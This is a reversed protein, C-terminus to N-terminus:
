LVTAISCYLQVEQGTKFVPNDWESILKEMITPKCNVVEHNPQSKLSFSIRKDNSMFPSTSHTLHPAALLPKSCFSMSSDGIKLTDSTSETIPRCIPQHTNSAQLDQMPTSHDQPVFPSDLVNPVFHKALKSSISNTRKKSPGKNPGQEMRGNTFQALKQAISPTHLPSRSVSKVGIFKPIVVADDKFDDFNQSSSAAISIASRKNRRVVDSQRGHSFHISTSEEADEPYTEVTYSGALDKTTTDPCRATANKVALSTAKLVTTWDLFEVLTKSPQWCFDCESPPCHITIFYVPCGQECSKNCMSTLLTNLLSHVQTQSVLRNNVYVLQLSKSPYMEVSVYGSVHYLGTCCEVPKMMTTVSPSYFHSLKEVSSQAKRSHLMCAGTTSNEVVFSIHPNVIATHQVMQRIYEAELSDKICKRRVPMSYFIDHLTVTTGAGQRHVASHTVGLDRGHHFLKCWTESSLQHRSCVEMTGILECISSLAEGKFGMSRISNLEQVSHCKSTFNKRGLVILDDHTIGCGNDTVQVFYKLIDLKVTIHTAGADLSNYVLERVCGCISAMSTSSHIKAKVLDNLRRISPLTTTLALLCQLSNFSRKILFIKKGQKNEFHKSMSLLREQQVHTM